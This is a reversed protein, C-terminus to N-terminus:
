KLLKTLSLFWHTVSVVHLCHRPVKLMCALNDIIEDVVSQSGFFVVDSYYIDRFFMDSTLLMLILTTILVSCCSIWHCRGICSLGPNQIGPVPNWEKDTSSQNLIRITLPIGSDKLQIGSELEWLELNLFSFIGLNQIGCAYIERIGKSPTLHGIVRHCIWQSIPFGQTWFENVKYVGELKVSNKTVHYLPTPYLPSPSSAPTAM